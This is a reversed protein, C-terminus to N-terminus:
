PRQRGREQKTERGPLGEVNYREVWMPVPRLASDTTSRVGHLHRNGASHAGTDGAAADALAPGLGDTM